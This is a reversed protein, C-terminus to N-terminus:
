RSAVSMERLIDSMKALRYNPFVNDRLHCCVEGWGEEGLYNLATEHTFIVFPFGVIYCLNRLNDMRNIIARVPKLYTDPKEFLKLDFLIDTTSSETVSLPYRRDHGWTDHRKKILQNYFLYMGSHKTFHFNVNNYPFAGFKEHVQATFSEGPLFPSILYQVGRKRLYPLASLGVQFGHASLVESRKGRPISAFFADYQRFVAELEKGQYESGEWQMYILRTKDIPVYKFHTSAHVCVEGSLRLLETYFTRRLQGLDVALLVRSSIDGLPRLFNYRSDGVVDDIRMGCMRAWAHHRLARGTAVEISRWIWDVHMLRCASLASEPAFLQVTSYVIKRRGRREYLLIPMQRDNAAIMIEAGPSSDAPPLACSCEAIKEILVTRHPFYDPIYRVSTVSVRRSALRRARSSFFSGSLDIVADYREVTKEWFSRDGSVIGNFFTVGDHSPSDVMGGCAVGDVGYFRLISEFCGSLHEPVRYHLQPNM